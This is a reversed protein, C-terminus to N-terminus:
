CFYLARSPVSFIDQVISLVLILQIILVCSPLVGGAGVHMKRPVFRGHCPLGRVCVTGALAAFETRTQAGAVGM